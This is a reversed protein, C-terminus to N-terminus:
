SRKASGEEVGAKYAKDAEEKVFKVMDDVFSSTSDKLILRVVNCTVSDPDKRFLKFEM